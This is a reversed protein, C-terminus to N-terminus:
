SEPHAEALRRRHQQRRSEGHSTRDARLLKASATMHPEFAPTQQMTSRADEIRQRQNTWADYLPSLRANQAKGLAMRRLRRDEPKM